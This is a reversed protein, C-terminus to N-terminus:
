WNVMARTGNKMKAGCGPCYLCKRSVMANCNSCDFADNSEDVDLWEAEGQREELPCWFPRYESNYRGNKDAKCNGSEGNHCPCDYCYEPLENM